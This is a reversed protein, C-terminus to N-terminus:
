MAQGGSQNEGPDEPGRRENRLANTLENLCPTAASQDDGLQSVELILNEFDNLVRENESLLGSLYAAHPEVQRSEGVEFVKVRNLMRKCNGLIYADVDDAVSLFPNDKTDDIVARLAQQKHKLSECQEAATQLLRTFPTEERQWAEFAEIYDDADRLRKTDSAATASDRHILLWDCFLSAALVGAASFIGWFVGFRSFLNYLLIALGVGIVSLVGLLVMTGKKM